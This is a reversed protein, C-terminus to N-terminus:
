GKVEGVELLMEEAEAEVKSLKREEGRLLDTISSPSGEEGEVRPRGWWGRSLMRM